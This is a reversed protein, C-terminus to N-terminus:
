SAGGASELVLHIAEGKTARAAEFFSESATLHPLVTKSLDDMTLGNRIAAVGLAIVECAAPGM